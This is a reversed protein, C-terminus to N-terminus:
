SLLERVDVISSFYGAAEVTPALRGDYVLATRISVDKPVSLAALNAKM